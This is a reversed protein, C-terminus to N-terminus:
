GEGGALMRQQRRQELEEASVDPPREATVDRGADLFAQRCVRDCFEMRWLGIPRSPAGVPVVVSASRLIPAAYKLQEMTVRASGPTLGCHECAM